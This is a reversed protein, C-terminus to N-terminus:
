IERMDNVANFLNKYLNRLSIKDPAIPRAKGLLSPTTIIDATAMGTPQFNGFVASILKM